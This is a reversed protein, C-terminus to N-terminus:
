KEAGYIPPAYIVLCRLGREGMVVIRHELGEPLRIVMGAELVRDEDMAQVMCTGELIYFIQESDPHCHWEAEGGPALEGLVLEVRACPVDDGGILRRNVTRKHGSPSYPEIRNPIAILEDLGMAGEMKRQVSRNSQEKLLAVDFNVM